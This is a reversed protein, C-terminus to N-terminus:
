EVFADAVDGMEEVIKMKYYNRVAGFKEETKYYELGLTNELIKISGINTPHATAAVNKLSEGNPLTFENDIVYPIWDFVGAGAYEKAYGHQQVKLSNACVLETTEKEAFRGTLVHGVFEDEKTRVVFASFPNEAKWRDHWTTMRTKIVDLTQTTGDGFLRMVKPDSYIHTHAEEADNACASSLVLRETYIYVARATEDPNDPNKTYVDWDVEIQAPNYKAHYKEQYENFQQTFKPM